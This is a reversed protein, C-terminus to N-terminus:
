SIWGALAWSQVLEKCWFINLRVRLLHVLCKVQEDQRQEGRSTAKATLRWHSLSFQLPNSASSILVGPELDDDAALSELCTLQFPALLVLMLPLELKACAGLHTALSLIRLLGMLKSGLCHRLFMAWIM